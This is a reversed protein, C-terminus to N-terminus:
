DAELGFPFVEDAGNNFSDAFTDEAIRSVGVARTTGPLLDILDDGEGSPLSEPLTDPDSSWILFSYM